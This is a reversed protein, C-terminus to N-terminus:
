RPVDVGAYNIWDLFLGQPPLTPGAERRNKSALVQEVVQPEYRGRGVEVLTGVMIRVMNYLFGDGEVIVNLLPGAGDREARCALISRVTSRRGHGAAAFGAFDHTGVFRGAADAMREVDLSRWCHWAFHREHVPSRDACFIRYRYHKFAADRIAHFDPGVIAAEMVQVDAPLRSNIAHGMREVPIPTEADFHAAQGLAHVGADTRSAGVLVIPQQLAQCLTQEVVGAVTRLTQGSRDTQKQWGHFGTGDYAVIIKYRQVSDPKM